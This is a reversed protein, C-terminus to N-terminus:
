AAELFSLIERALRPNRQTGLHGAGARVSLQANPMRESAHTFLTSSYFRDLEGGAILTRAEITELRHDLDFHDEADLTVLLDSDGRGIIARPVIMGAISRMAHEFATAGTNGFYVAAARRDRGARLLAAVTRQTARGRDSLRHASSVLVLRRVLEPHDAALQLAITGGTSIGLIDVPEDFLSGVTRAYEAALDAISIGPELDYRRDISFVTRDGIFDAIETRQM